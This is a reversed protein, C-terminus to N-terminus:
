ASLRPLVRASFHMAGDIELLQQQMQMQMQQQASADGGGGGEDEGSLLYYAGIAFRDWDSCHM